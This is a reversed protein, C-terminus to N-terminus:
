RARPSVDASIWHSQSDYPECVAQMLAFAIPKLTISVGCSRLFVYHQHAPFTSLRVLSSISQLKTDVTPYVDCLFMDLSM